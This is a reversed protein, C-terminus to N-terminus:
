KFEFFCIQNKRRKKNSNESKLLGALKMKYIGRYISSLKERHKNIHIGCKHHVKINIGDNCKKKVRHYWVYWTTPLECM